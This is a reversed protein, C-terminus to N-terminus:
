AAAATNRDALVRKRPLTVAVVTGQGLASNIEFQGGMLEVLRKALPLGLGTGAYRRAMVSEIQGFPSMALPINEAAMGIGNDVVSIRCGGTSDSGATIDVRGGVPTFKVANSILNILVQKL